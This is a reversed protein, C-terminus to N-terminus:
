NVKTNQDVHVCKHPQEDSQTTVEVEINDLLMKMNENMESFAKMQQTNRKRKQLENKLFAIAALNISICAFIICVGGAVYLVYLIEKITM